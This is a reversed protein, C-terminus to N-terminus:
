PKRCFVAGPLRTVLGKMELELLIGLIQDLGQGTTAALHEATVRQGPPLVKLLEGPPGDVTPHRNRDGPRSLLERISVPLSEVIEDPHKVLLAGDQILANPGASRRDFISGPVAYVDRGLDLALRATILSGSRPTGQVVLIGLSLAAIIRNRIPFNWTRPQAGFPFESVLAGRSPL